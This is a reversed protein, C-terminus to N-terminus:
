GAFGGDALIGEIRSRHAAEWADLSGDAEKAVNAKATQLVEDLRASPVVVIGEEDAVVVDGADVKVGGCRVPM